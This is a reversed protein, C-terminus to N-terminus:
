FALPWGWYAQQDEAVMVAQAMVAQAMNTREELYVVLLDVSCDEVEELDMAAVEV